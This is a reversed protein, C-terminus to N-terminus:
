NSGDASRTQWEAPPSPVFPITDPMPRGWFASRIGRLLTSLREQTAGRYSEPTERLLAARELKMSRHQYRERLEDSTLDRAAEVEAALAELAEWVAARDRAVVDFRGPAGEFPGDFDHSWGYTWAGLEDPRFRVHWTHPERYEAQVRHIEGSPSTFTWPVVQSEPAATRIWADRLTAEFPRGLPLPAAAAVVRVQVWEWEVDFPLPAPRWAVTDTGLGGRVELTPETRGDESEFTVAFFAAGPTAIPELVLQRGYELAVPNSTVRTVREAEWDLVLRPHRAPNWSDGENASYITIVSGSTDEDPDSLKLLLRIPAGARVQETAYAAFADSTIEVVSDGPRILAQALPMAPTDASETGDAAYGVGPLGWALSEFGADNWWVEGPKPPSVHDEAVGGGGPSWDKNVRYVMLRRPWEIEEELSLELAARRVVADGPLPISDWRHLVRFIELEGFRPRGDRRGVRVHVQGPQNWGWSFGGDLFGRLDNDEMATYSRGRALETRHTRPELPSSAAGAAGYASVTLVGEVPAPTELGSHDDAPAPSRVARLVGWAALVGGTALVLLLPIWRSGPAQAM